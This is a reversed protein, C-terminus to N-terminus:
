QLNAATTEVSDILSIESDVGYGKAEAFHNHVKMGFNGQTDKFIQHMEPGREQTENKTSSPITM